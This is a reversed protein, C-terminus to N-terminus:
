LVGAEKLINELSNVQERNMGILPLRVPGVQKGLLNLATKVPVPNTSIFMGKFVTMLKGHYEAAKKVDGSFFAAIMAKIERPVIHGSVSVVGHGGVSLTPMTMSDDGSYVLFDDPTEKVILSVQDLDGSAEKISFINDIEALRITTPAALNVSTRGPVNYLMIPLNTSSAIEKFHQYLGEQPPKNYYPVVLMLGDVGVEEARRTIEVSQRTSNSGTGAIVKVKGQVSEVVTKFLKAKEDITLTPSEGTTGAVVLSDSGSDALYKALAGAGDYDVQFKEDFPTVMATILHGFDEGM